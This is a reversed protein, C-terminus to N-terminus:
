RLFDLKSAISQARWAAEVQAAAQPEDANEPPEIVAGTRAEIVQVDGNAGVMFWAKNAASYLRGQEDPAIPVYVGDELRYALLAPGNGVLDLIFYEQVGAQAYLARKEVRDIEALHPSTVELIFRPTAGEESVNFTPRPRQPETVRAVVALDPAPQPLAPDLWIIKAGTLVATFSSYRYLGRLIAALRKVAADHQEGHFFEDGPQPNLFDAATLAVEEYEPQATVNQTVIQRRGVPPKDPQM